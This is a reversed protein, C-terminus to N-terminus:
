WSFGGSPPPWANQLQRLLVIRGFHYANHAALSILQEAVTMERTPHGPPSPCRIIKTLSEPSAALTAAIKNATHFRHILDSLPEPTTTTEASESVSFGYEPNHPYPTELGRAWDISLQQWFTIHFLEQYITHPTNPVSTHAITDTLGELIFAPAAHASDATLAKVLENM